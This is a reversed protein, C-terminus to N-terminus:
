EGYERRGDPYEIYPKNVSKDEDKEIDEFENKYNFSYFPLLFYLENELRIKIKDQDMVQTYLVHYVKEGEDRGM